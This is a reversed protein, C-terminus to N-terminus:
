GKSILVTYDSTLYARKKTSPINIAFYENDQLMKINYSKKNDEHLKTFTSLPIALVKEHEIFWVVIFINVDNIAAYKILKDYQTLNSLPFTNGKISKCEILFLQKNTFAIYDCINRSTGYYGSQQDPLRLLFTDPFSVKWDHEFQQEFKKGHNRAM